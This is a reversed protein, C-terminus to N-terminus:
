WSKSPTNLAAHIARCIVYASVIRVLVQAALSAQQPASQQLPFLEDYLIIKTAVYYIMGGWLGFDVLRSAVRSVREWSPMKLKQPAWVDPKTPAISTM